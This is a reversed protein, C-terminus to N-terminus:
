QEVLKNVAKALQKIENERDKKVQNAYEVFEQVVSYEGVTLEGITNRKLARQLLVRKNKCCDGWPDKKGTPLSERLSRLQEITTAM